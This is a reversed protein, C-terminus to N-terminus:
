QLKSLSLYNLDFRGTEAIIRLEHRGATLAIVVPVDVWHNWGGSRPITVAGSADQGDIEIRFRRNSSPTSARVLVRYLGAAEVNIHYALWEGEAIWGVDYTGSADRTALIDVDDTRYLEGSNGPTTDLYAIGSGGTHYDEAEIQSSARYVRQWPVARFEFAGIDTADFATSTQALDYDYGINVAARTGGNIAPSEAHLMFNHNAADVFRPAAIRSTESLAFGYLNLLTPAGGSWFINNRETFPGDSSFPERNVWMVNNELTLIDPGCRECAVGKSGDGTLYLTNNVVMTALVPGHPHDWGRTVIFRAGYSPASLSTVHLNYAYINNAAQVKPSSGMESFVRDGFSQNHHIRANTAAYLEISNSEIVGTYTCISQNDALYNYAVEQSDGQLLVGMAGLTRQPELQWVVNNGTITNHLAKNDHSDGHFFIGIAQKTAISNQVINHASAAQFAFGARWGVPQNNCNPDPNPPSTMTAHLNELIQYRGGIQVSSSARNELKPLAGTGYAGIVVANTVTGTWNAVLPGEWSCGRRFRLRDGPLLQAQNAKAVTRWASQQTRGDGRDDGDTCDVYYTVSNQAIVRESGPLEADRADEVLLLNDRNETNVLIPRDDIRVPTATPTIPLLPATAPKTEGQDVNPMTDALTGRCAATLWIIVYLGYFIILRGRWKAGVTHRSFLM